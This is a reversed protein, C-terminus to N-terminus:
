DLMRTIKALQEPFCTFAKLQDSAVEFCSFCLSSRKMWEMKKKKVQIPM